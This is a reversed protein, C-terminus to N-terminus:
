DRLAQAIDTITCAINLQEARSIMKSSLDFLSQKQQETMKGAATWADALALNDTNSLDLGRDLNGRLLDLLTLAVSRLPDLKDDAADQIVARQGNKAAWMAFANTGIVGNVTIDRRHMIEYIAGDNGSLIHPAIEAALPGTTLEVLLDTM